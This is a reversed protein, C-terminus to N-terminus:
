QQLHLADLKLQLAALRDFSPLLVNIHAPLPTALTSLRPRVQSMVVTKVFVHKQSIPMSDLAGAHLTATTASAPPSPKIFSMLHDLTSESERQAGRSGTAAAKAPARAGRAQSAPGAAQSVSGQVPSTEAAAAPKGAELPKTAASKPKDQPNPPAPTYGFVPKDLGLFTYGETTKSRVELGFHKRFDDIGAIFEPRKFLGLPQTQASSGADATASSPVVSNSASASM